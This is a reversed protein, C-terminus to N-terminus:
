DNTRRAMKNAHIGATPGDRDRRPDTQTIPLIPLRRLVNELHNKQPIQFRSMSQIQALELKVM